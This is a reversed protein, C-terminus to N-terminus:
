TSTSIEEHVAHDSRSEAEKLEVDQADKEEESLEKQPALVTVIVLQSDSKVEVGKPLSLDSVLISDGIGLGSVDVEIADPIDGPLCQVELEHLIVSLIGGERVGSSDGTADIRVSARVNENMSIQHFDVHLLKYSLADRQVDAVMVSHTGGEPVSLELVANPHSRLLSALEKESVSIVASSQLKKGYVVGPIQGSMRLQRLDGKTVGTRQEAQIAIAM